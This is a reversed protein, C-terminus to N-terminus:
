WMLYDIKILKWGFYALITASIGHSSELQHKRSDEELEKLFSINLMLGVNQSLKPPSLRWHIIPNILVSLSAFDCNLAKPTVSLTQFKLLQVCMTNLYATFKM